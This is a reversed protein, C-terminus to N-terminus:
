DKNKYVKGRHGIRLVIAGEDTKAYVVRYAGVRYKFLGKFQGPLPEGCDPDKGLENEIQRLIRKAM